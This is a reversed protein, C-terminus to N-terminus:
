AFDTQRMITISMSPVTWINANTPSTSSDTQKNDAPKSHRQHAQLIRQQM